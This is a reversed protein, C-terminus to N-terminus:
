AAEPDEPMSLSSIVAEAHAQAAEPSAFPQGVGDIFPLEPDFPQCTTKHGNLFLDYGTATLHIDFTM